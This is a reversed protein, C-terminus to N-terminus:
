VTAAASVEREDCELLHPSPAADKLVRDRGAEPFEDRRGDDYLLAIPAMDRALPRAEIDYSNVCKGRLWRRALRRVPAAANVRWASSALCRRADLHAGRLL